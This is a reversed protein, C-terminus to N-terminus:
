NAYRITKVDVWQGWTDKREDSNIFFAAYAIACGFQCGMYPNLTFDYDSM